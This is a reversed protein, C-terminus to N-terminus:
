RRDARRACRADSLDDSADGRRRSRRRNSRIAVAVGHERPRPRVGVVRVGTSRARAHGGVLQRRGVRRRRHDGPSCIGGAPSATAVRSSWDYQQDLLAVTLARHLAFHYLHEYTTLDDSAYITKTAPDYFAPSENLAQRGVAELDLEGNLLGLARWTPASEAPTGVTSEALRSAYDAVPLPTVEVAVKFELGRAAPSRM